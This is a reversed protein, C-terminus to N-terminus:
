FDLPITLLFTSSGKEIEYLDTLNTLNGITNPIYGSFENNALSRSM